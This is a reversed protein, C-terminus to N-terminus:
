TILYKTLDFRLPNCLEDAANQGYGREEFSAIMGYKFRDNGSTLAADRALM